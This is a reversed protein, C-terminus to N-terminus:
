REVKLPRMTGEMVDIRWPTGATDTVVCISSDGLSWNPEFTPSKPTRAPRRRHLSRSKVRNIHKQLKSRKV